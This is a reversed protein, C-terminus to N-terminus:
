PGSNPVPASAGAHRDGRVGRAAHGRWSALAADLRAFAADNGPLGLRLWHPRAAFPRTLIAARALHDYLDHARELILLRFLDTGGAVTLGHSTLLADLRARSAALTARTSAIWAEDRLAAAGIAAAPGSVAWPGLADRLKAALDPAALAFGLRLGALGFFKGVSRLIVLDPRGAWPATSVEPAVDAFAEDVIVIRHRAAALMRQPEFVRGDPNNPNVVVVVLARDLDDIFTETERVQHGAQSWAAAHENYTPGIVAVAARPYLRPLWQILSQSGPAPVVLSDDDLGYAAAAARRLEALMSRDPLGHTWSQWPADATVPYPTPNIGTSLDLWQSRPVGYRAAAVDVGGGHEREAAIAGAIGDAGTPDSRRRM